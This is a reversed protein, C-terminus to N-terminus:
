KAKPLALLKVSTLKSCLWAIVAIVVLALTLIFGGVITALSEPNAALIERSRQHNAAHTVWSAAFLHAEFEAAGKPALRPQSADPSPSLHLVCHGLEHPLTYALNEPSKARNLVIHPKQEIMEAFGSVKEPLDAYCVECGAQEAAAATEELSRVNLEEQLRIAEGAASWITGFGQFLMEATSGEYEPKM